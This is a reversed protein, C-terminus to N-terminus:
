DDAVAIPKSRPLWRLKARITYAPRMPVSKYSLSDFDLGHLEMVGSKPVSESLFTVFFAQAVNNAAEGLTRSQTEFFALRQLVQSDMAPTSLGPAGVVRGREGFREGWESPPFVPPGGRASSPRNAIAAATAM